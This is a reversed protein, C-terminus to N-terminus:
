HFDQLLLSFYGSSIKIWLSVPLHCYHSICHMGYATSGKLIILCKSVNNAVFLLLCLHKLDTLLVFVRIEM